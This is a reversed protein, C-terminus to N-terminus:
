SLTEVRCTPLPHHDAGVWRLLATGSTHGTTDLWNGWGPDTDAVVFTVTGDDNLK